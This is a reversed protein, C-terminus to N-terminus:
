GGPQRGDVTSDNGIPAAQRWRAALPKEVGLQRHAASVTFARM